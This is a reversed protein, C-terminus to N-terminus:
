RLRDMPRKTNRWQEVTMAQDTNGDEVLITGDKEAVLFDELRHVADKGNEVFSLQYYREGRILRPAQDYEIVAGHVKGGSERELQASWARLEPLAMLAAAAQEKSRRKSPTGAETSTGTPQATTPTPQAAVTQAPTSTMEVPSPLTSVPKLYSLAGGLAVVLVAALTMAAKDAASHKNSHRQAM